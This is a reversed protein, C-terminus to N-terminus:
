QPAPGETTIIPKLGEKKRKKLSSGNAGAMLPAEGAPLTTPQSLPAEPNMPSATPVKESASASNTSQQGNM